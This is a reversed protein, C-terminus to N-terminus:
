LDLVTRRVRGIVDFDKKRRIFIPRNVANWSYPELRPPDPQWLKFTPGEARHWFVYPKGAVLDRAARNVVIVSGPPSIRDMSDGEVRLAFFEGQGLDAFVLLPADEVPIQSEADVLQGASVWSLLPIRRFSLPIEEASVTEPGERWLLWEETTNLAAAIERLLRPRAVRGQEISVIGQQKMGVAAALQNQSFRMAQRRATVRQGFAQKDVPRM